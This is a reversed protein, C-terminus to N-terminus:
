QLVCCGCKRKKDDVHVLEARGAKPSNLHAGRVTATQGDVESYQLTIDTPKVATDSNSGKSGRKEKKKGNNQAQPPGNKSKKSDPPSGSKSHRPQPTPKKTTSKDTPTKSSSSVTTSDNLLPQRSGVEPYPKTRFAAVIPDVENYLEDQPRFPNEHENDM